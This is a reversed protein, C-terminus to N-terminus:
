KAPRPYSSEAPSAEDSQAAEADKTESGAAPKPRLLHKPKLIEEALAQPKIPVPQRILEPVNYTKIFSEYFRPDRQPLV